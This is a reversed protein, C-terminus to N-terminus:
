KGTAKATRLADRFVKCLGTGLVHGLNQQQVGAEACVMCLAKEKCTKAVHGEKGCRFCAKSRDPGACSGSEHGFSLCKFCRKVETRLKVRCSVWGIRIRGQKLLRAAAQEPLDVIAAMQSRSNPTTLGVRLGAIDGLDRKLAQEVEGRETLCDLDRVELSKMPVMSKVSGLTGVADELAQTFSGLSSRGKVELLVKGDRTKRITKIEAGTDEPKVKAKISRLVDSYSTGAAPKIIVAPRRSGSVMRRVNVEKRAHSAEPAKTPAEDLKRNEAARKNRRKPGEVVTWQRAEVSLSPTMEMAKKRKPVGEKEAPSGAGRKPTGSTTVEPLVVKNKQTKQNKPQGVKETQASRNKLKRPTESQTAANAVKAGVKRGWLNKLADLADQLVVLGNKIDSSINVQRLTAAKMKVLVESSQQFCEEVSLDLSNKYERERVGAPPSSNSRAATPPTRLLASCRRFPNSSPSKEPGERGVVVEKDMNEKGTELNKNKKMM